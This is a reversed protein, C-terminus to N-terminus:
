KGIETSYGGNLVEIARAVRLVTPEGFHPGLVQVGIPLGESSTGGPVSVGPLGAMSAPITYIDTLYMTLPDNLKEGLKFAPTPAVPLILADVREFAREFGQALLRRVKQAKLYYADYYGSSLAYTGLMIRRKVETGFGIGRTRGYMAILDQPASSDMSAGPAADPADEERARFGYKVGDYRALNASAESSAVIYYAAIGYEAHPLSVEEVSAGEAALREAAGRVTREVEPDLGEGFGERVLGVRLGKPGADLGELYDPVPEPASTSDRPDHGAILRLLWAADPVNRAFPGVQDLSSAFAVLGYRSVRGYTPKVGVVGCFSAPLRISGGTDTGLALPAERAAVAVASGGSSGGATRSPDVPNRTPGFYSTETSSGMAFEDMNTKGLFVAAAARLRAVVTADYSAVFNALSKSGCTTLTGELCLVDKIAVPVGALPGLTEGRARRDDVEQAQALAARRLVTIFAAVRPEAEDIASLYARVAEVASLERRELRGALEVASLATVDTEPRKSEAGTTPM